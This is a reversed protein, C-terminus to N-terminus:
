TSVVLTAERNMADDFRGIATSWDDKGLLENVPRQKLYIMDSMGRGHGDDDMTADLMIESLQTSGRSLGLGDFAVQGGSALMWTLQELMDKELVACM